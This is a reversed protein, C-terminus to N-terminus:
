EGPKRAAGPTLVVWYTLPQAQTFEPLLPMVAPVPASRPFAVAALPAPLHRRLAPTHLDDLGALARTVLGDESHWFRGDRYFTILPNQPFWVAGPFADLIAAAETFHRTYPRAPLARFESVHLALAAATAALWARPGAGSHPALGVLLFAPLLYPWSHLLNLDGGAKLFGALGLPLMAAAVCVLLQFLRGSPRERSPWAQRHHLWLLALAPLVLQAALALARQSLRPRVEAWPLRAPIAVLNLWLGDFGFACIAAFGAALTLAAVWAAYHVAVRRPQTLGLYLLQGAVLGVAIQKSWVALAALLAAAALRGAALEPPRSLLLCSLLGCAIAARDAVQLVFTDGPLLLVALALALVPAVPGRSRLEASGFFIAALPALVTLLNIAAAARLADSPTAALTAPLNLVLGVPGYIWTFLPGTGALPYPNVGHRWAFAPALRVENWALQPFHCWAWWLCGAAGAVAALTVLRLTRAAPNM